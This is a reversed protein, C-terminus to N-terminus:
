VTGVLGSHAMLQQLTYAILLYTTHLLRAVVIPVQRTSLPPGYAYWMAAPLVTNNSIPVGFNSIWIKLEKRRNDDVEKDLYELITM